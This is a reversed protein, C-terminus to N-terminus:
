SFEWYLTQEFISLFDAHARIPQLKNWVNHVIYEILKTKYFKDVEPNGSNINDIVDKMVIRKLDDSYPISFTGERIERILNLLYLEDGGM